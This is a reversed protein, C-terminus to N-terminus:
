KELVVIVNVKLIGLYGIFMFDRMMGNLVVLIFILFGVFGVFVEIRSVLVYGVRSVDMCGCLVKFLFFISASIVELRNVWFYGLFYFSM